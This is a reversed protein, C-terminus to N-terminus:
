HQHEHTGAAHPNPDVTYGRLESYRAAQNATLVDLMALHYKLHAARLAANATGIAATTAGLTEPTITRKAFLQDLEWEREILQEGLPITEAKMADFLARARQLQINTLELRDAFEIVHSPGPYGNVEAALALGMGRGQQLDEVQQPSLSKIPRREYGAYPPPSSASEQAMAAPLAVILPLAVLLAYLTMQNRRLKWVTRSAAISWLGSRQFGPTM